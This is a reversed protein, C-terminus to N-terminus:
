PAESEEPQTMPLHPPLLEVVGTEIWVARRGGLKRIPHVFEYMQVTRETNCYRCRVERPPEPPLYVEFERGRYQLLIQAVRACCPKEKGVMRVIATTRMPQGGM